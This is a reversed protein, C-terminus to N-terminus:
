NEQLQPLGTEELYPTALDFEWESFPGKATYLNRVIEVVRSRASFSRALGKHTNAVLMTDLEDLDRAWMTLCEFASPYYDFTDDDGGPTYDAPDQQPDLKNAFEYFMGWLDFVGGTLLAVSAWADPGFTEAFLPDQALARNRVAMAWEPMEMDASYPDIDVAPHEPPGYENHGMHLLLKAAGREWPSKYERPHEYHPPTFSVIM